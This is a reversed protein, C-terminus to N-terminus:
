YHRRGSGLTGSASAESKEEAALSRSAQQPRSSATPGEGGGATKAEALPGQFVASWQARDAPSQMSLVTYGTRHWPLMADTMNDLFYDAEETRLLLVVHPVYTENIVMALLLREAPVGKELLQKMKLLAYDECDGRGGSPLTWRESVGYLQADSQPRIRRNVSVNVDRAIGTLAALEVEGVSGNECAWPYTRCLNRAGEPARWSQREEVHTPSAAAAASVLMFVVTAASVLTSLSKM